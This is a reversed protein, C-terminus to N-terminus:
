KKFRQVCQALKKLKYDRIFTHIHTKIGSDLQTYIKQVSKMDTLSLSSRLYACHKTSSILVALKTPRRLFKNELAFPQHHLMVIKASQM